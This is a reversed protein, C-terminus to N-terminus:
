QDDSAGFIGFQAAHGDHDDTVVGHELLDAFLQALDYRHHLNAVERIGFIDLAVKQQYANVRRGLLAGSDDIRELIGTIRSIM